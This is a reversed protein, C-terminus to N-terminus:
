ELILSLEKFFIECESFTPNKGSVQLIIYEDRIQVKHIKDFNRRKLEDIFPKTVYASEVDVLFAVYTGSKLDDFERTTVGYEELLDLLREHEGM